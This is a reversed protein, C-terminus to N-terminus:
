PCKQAQIIKLFEDVAKVLLERKFLSPELKSAFNNEKDFDAYFISKRAEFDAVTDHTFGTKTFGSDTFGGEFLVKCCDPLANLALEFKHRHDLFGGNNDTYQIAIKNNPPRPSLSSLYLFKGYEEVAYTYVGACIDDYKEENLELFRKIAELNHIINNKIFCRMDDRDGTEIEFELVKGKKTTRTIITKYLMLSVEHPVQIFNDKEGLGFGYSICNRL